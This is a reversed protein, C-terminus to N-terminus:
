NPELVRIKINRFWVADTHDQLVIHGKRKKAFDPIKRYKSAAVLKDMEPTDLDYELVEVANLWHEGHKGHFIIRAQNFEGVSKLTKGEPAILDYLAAATRNKGMLADPHREDDLIQYEFGLAAYQPPHATSMEESVNYKIGSNGAPSIKWELSLEFNEFTEITMLDGGVLPQGDEQIPIDKSPVKQIAGDQIIWHGEPIGRRWLGRWGDFTKGDFLLIWGEAKEEETLCNIPLSTKVQPETVQDAESEGEQKPACTMSLALLLALVMLNLYTKWAFLNRSRKDLM